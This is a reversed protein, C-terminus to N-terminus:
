NAVSEALAKRHDPLPTTSTTGRNLAHVGPILGNASWDMSSTTQKNTIAAEGLWRVVAGGIEWCSRQRFTRL